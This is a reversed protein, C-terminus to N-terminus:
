KSKLKPIIEKTARNIDKPFDIDIWEGISIHVPFIKHGKIILREILDTLLFQTFGEERALEEITQILQFVGTESFKTIGAYEHTTRNHSIDKSIETLYNDEIRVREAGQNGQYTTVATAIDAKCEILEKIIQENFLIDSYLVLLPGRMIPIACWLSALINSVNYFPNFLYKVNNKFLDKIKEDHFGTVIFIDNVGNSHLNDIIYELINKGEIPILGKPLDQSYPFLRQSKGAALIIAQIGSRQYKPNEELFNSLFSPDNAEEVTLRRITKQSVTEGNRISQVLYYYIKSGTKVKKIFVM